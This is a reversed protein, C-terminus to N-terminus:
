YDTILDDVTVKKEKKEPTKASVTQPKSAETKPKVTAPKKGNPANEPTVAPDTEVATEANESDLLTQTEPPQPATETQAPPQNATDVPPNAGVQSTVTQGNSGSKSVFTWAGFAGGGVLILVLGIVPISWKSSKKEDANEFLVSFESPTYDKKYDSPVVEASVKEAEQLSVVESQESIIEEAPEVTEPEEELTEIEEIFDDRIEIEEVAEEPEDAPIEIELIEETEDLEFIEGAENVPILEDGTEITQIEGAESSTEAPIEEARFEGFPESDLDLVSAETKTEKIEESELLEITEVTKLIDPENLDGLTFTEYAALNEAPQKQGNAAAEREKVRVFATRLAQRMIVASHFRKERRIELAKLIIECVEPPIEANLASPAALPDPNGDLIEISRELANKPFQGTLMQYLLVGLSYIDCRADAPQRLIREATEDFSAAIVKQSALDLNEWIQELPSYNLDEASPNGVPKSGCRLKLIASTLLKIKGASTLFVSQPRIDGFVVPPLHLHLYSLADLMQETWGIVDTFSFDPKEKKLIDSLFEGDDSEMVVFWGNPEAFYDYATLFVEHKIGKLIKEEDALNTRGNYACRNVIINKDLINDFGEYVSGVDNQGLHRIIRYRGEQLLENLPLM